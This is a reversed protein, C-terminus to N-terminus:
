QVAYAVQVSVTIEQQGPEVVSSGSEAVAGKRLDFNVPTPAPSSVETISTPKGLTVGGEDALQQAKSRADNMAAARAQSALASPDNVTFTIGGIQLDDGVANVAADLTEAAHDGFDDPVHFAEIARVGHRGAIMPVMVLRLGPWPHRIQQLACFM